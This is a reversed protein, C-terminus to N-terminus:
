TAIEDKNEIIADKKAIIEDKQEIIADKKAIIIENKNAIIETKAEIGDDNSSPTEQRDFSRRTRAWAQNDTKLNNLAQNTGSDTKSHYSPATTPNAAASQIRKQAEMPTETQVKGHNSTAGVGAAAGAKQTAESLGKELGPIVGGGPLLYIINEEFFYILVGYLLVNVLVIKNKKYLLFIFYFAISANCFNTNIINVLSPCPALFSHFFAWFFGVFLMVESIIFLIAGLRLSQTVKETHHRNYVGEITIDNLWFLITLGILGLSVFLFFRENFPSTLSNLTEIMFILLELSIVLPWFATKLIHFCHYFHM